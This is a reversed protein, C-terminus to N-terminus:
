GGFDKSEMLLSDRIFKARTFDIMKEDAGEEGGGMLYQIHAKQTLFFLATIGELPLNILGLSSGLRLSSLEMVAERLNIAKCNSLIGFSRYVRDEVEIRSRLLLEERAKREYHVLQESLNELKEIMERESLGIATQNSIQYLDGLSNEEGGFFGKASFGLQIVVKLAKDILGTKVLAPLHLMLSIRMGTGINILETTLYGMELSAAFPLRKEIRRDLEQLEKFSEKLCEGGHLSSFRLHDIENIMVSLCHNEKLAFSKQGQLSFDQSIMNRELLMRRQLPNLTDLRRIDLAGEVEKLTCVIEETVSNEEEEKMAGPFPYNELNRAFRVRSSVVVDPNKGKELFWGKADQLTTFSIM